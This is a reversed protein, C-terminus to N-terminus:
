GWIFYQLVQQMRKAKSSMCITLYCCIDDAIDNQCVRLLNGFDKGPLLIPDYPNSISPLIWVYQLPKTNHPLPDGNGIVTAALVVILSQIKNSRHKGLVILISFSVNPFRPRNQVIPAPHIKLNAFQPGGQRMTTSFMLSVQHLKVNAHHPYSWSNSRTTHSIINWTNIYYPVVVLIKCRPGFGPITRQRRRATGNRGPIRPRLRQWHLTQLKPKWDNAFAKYANNILNNWNCEIALISKCAFKKWCTETPRTPLGEKTNTANANHKACNKQKM